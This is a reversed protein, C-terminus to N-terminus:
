FVTIIANYVNNFNVIDFSILEINRVDDVERPQLDYDRYVDGCKAVVEDGLNNPFGSCMEDSKCM